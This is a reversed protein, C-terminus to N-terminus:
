REAEVLMQFSRMATLLPGQGWPVVADRPMRRYHEARTSPFTEYSVGALKGDPEVHGLMARLAGEIVRRYAADLWGRRIAMSWGDVVFAAVSTELYAKKDDLVTHWDGTGDQLAALADAQRRFVDLIRQRAPDDNPLHGLTHLMGLMAWGNGRGWLVGNPAGTREQWFHCFLNRDEDFLLDISGLLNELALDRHREDRTVSYLKAFFPGDFHMNDVFVCPGGDTVKRAQELAVDYDPHDLPLEPPLEIAADEYRVYAGAQTRRFGALYEAHERAASLLAPDGTQEYTRVLAVGPATYDFKSRHERRALWGALLGHAYGAYRGDGTMDTADLLGELGISDAWFWLKWPHRMLLDAAGHAIRAFSATAHHDM